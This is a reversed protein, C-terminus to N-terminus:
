GSLDLRTLFAGKFGSLGKRWDGKRWYGCEAEEQKGLLGRKQV